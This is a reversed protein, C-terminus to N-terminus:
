ALKKFFIVIQGHMSCERKASFLTSKGIKSSTRTFFVQVLPPRNYADPVPWGRALAPASAIWMSKKNFVTANALDAAAVSSPWM